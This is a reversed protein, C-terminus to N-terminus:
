RIYKNLCKCKTTTSIDDWINQVILGLSIQLKSVLQQSKLSFMPYTTCTVAHPIFKVLCSTFLVWLPVACKFLKLSHILNYQWCFVDVCINFLLDSRVSSANLIRDSLGCESTTQAMNFSRRSLHHGALGDDTDSSHTHKPERMHLPHTHLCSEM